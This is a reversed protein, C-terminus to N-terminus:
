QAGKMRNLAGVFAQHHVGFQVLGTSMSAITSEAPGEPATLSAQLAEVEKLMNDVAARYAAFDKATFYTSSDVRSVATVDDQAGKLERQAVALSATATASLSKAESVLEQKASVAVTPMASVVENMAVIAADVHHTASNMKTAVDSTGDSSTKAGSCGALLAVVMVALAVSLVARRSM